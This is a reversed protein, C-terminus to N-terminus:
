PRSDLGCLAQQASEISAFGSEEAERVFEAPNRPRGGIRHRLEGARRRDLEERVTRGLFSFARALSRESVLMERALIRATFAPDGYRDEILAMAEGYVHGGGRRTRPAANEVVSRLLIEGARAVAPQESLAPDGDIVGNTLARAPAWLAPEVPLVEGLRERIWRSGLVRDDFAWSYTVSPGPFLVQTQPEAELIVMQNGSPELVRGEQRVVGGGEVILMLHVGSAPRSEPAAAPDLRCGLPAWVRSVGNGPAGAGEIRVGPAGAGANNWREHMYEYMAATSAM